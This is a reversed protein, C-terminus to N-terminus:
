IEIGLAPFRSGARKKQKAPSDTETEKQKRYIDSLAFFVGQEESPENESPVPANQSQPEASACLVANM